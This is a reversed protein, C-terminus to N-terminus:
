SMLARYREFEGITDADSRARDPYLVQLRARRRLVAGSLDQGSDMTVPYFGTKTREIRKSTSNGGRGVAGGRHEWSFGGSRAPGSVWGASTCLGPRMAIYSWRFNGSSDIM